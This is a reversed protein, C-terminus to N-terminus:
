DHSSTARISAYLDSARQFSSRFAEEHYVWEKFLSKRADRNRDPKVGDALTSLSQAGVQASPAHFRVGFKINVREIVSGYDRILEKFDCIEFNPRYRLISTYFMLWHRLSYNVWLMAQNTRPQYYGYRSVRSVIADVPERILVLCPINMKCALTIQFPLHQHHAVHIERDQATIFAIAAFSNGSSPAGEIVIESARSITIDPWKHRFWGVSGEHRGILLRTEEKILSAIDKLNSFM